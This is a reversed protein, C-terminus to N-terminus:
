QAAAAEVEDVRAGARERRYAVEVTPQAADGGREPGPGVQEEELLVGDSQAHVAQHVPALAVEVLARPSQPLDDRGHRAVPEGQPRELLVGGPAVVPAVVVSTHRLREQKVCLPCLARTPM